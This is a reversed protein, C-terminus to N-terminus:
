FVVGLCRLDLLVIRAFFCWDIPELVMSAVRDFVHGSM